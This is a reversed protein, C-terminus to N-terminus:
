KSVRIIDVCHKTNNTNKFIEFNKLNQLFQLFEFNCMECYVSINSYDHFRRDYDTKIMKLMDVANVYISLPHLKLKM